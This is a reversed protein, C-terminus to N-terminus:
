TYSYNNISRDIKITKYTIIFSFLILSSFYSLLEPRHYLNLLILFIVKNSTNFIEKFNIYNFIFYILILYYFFTGVIGYSAPISFLNAGRVDSKQQTGFLINENFIKKDIDMRISRSDEVLGDKDIELRQFTAQYIKNLNSSEEMSNQLFYFLTSFLFTFLILYLFKNINFYFFIIYFILFVYFALSFCFITTIILILEFYKNKIFLKNLLIAFISYLAFAGPEDFFGSYRIFRLDGGNFFVNTTTLGLFYSTGHESYDVSFIPNIGILLHLFFILMGGFGMFLIVYIYQSIFNYFDIFVNIYIITILLAVLQIILRVSDTDGFIIFNLFFFVIQILIISLISTNLRFNRSNRLLDLTMIILCFATLIKYPHGPWKYFIFPATSTILIWVLLTRIQIFNNLKIM